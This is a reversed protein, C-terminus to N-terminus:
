HRRSGQLRRACRGRPRGRRRDRALAPEDPQRPARPEEAVDPARAAADRGAVVVAPERRGVLLGLPRLRLFGSDAELLGRRGRVRARLLRGAGDAAYTRSRGRQAKCEPSASRPRARPPLHQHRRARGIRPALASRPRAPAGGGRGTRGARRRRPDWRLHTRRADRRVDAKFARSVDASLLIKVIWADWTKLHYLVAVLSPMLRRVGRWRSAVSGSPRTTWTRM